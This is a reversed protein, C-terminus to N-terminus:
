LKRYHLIIERQKHCPNTVRHQSLLKTIYQRYHPL